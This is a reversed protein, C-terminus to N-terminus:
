PQFSAPTMASKTREIISAVSDAQRGAALDRTQEPAQEGALKRVREPMGDSLERDLSSLEEETLNPDKTRERALDLKEQYEIVATREHALRREDARRGFFKESRPRDDAISEPAIEESKLEAGHEDFVRTGDETKFVRRGDPLVHAKLLMTEIDKRAATLERENDMLAQVTATDYRDLKVTFEAIKEPSALTTQIAAVFEATRRRDTERETKDQEMKVRLNMEMLLRQRQDASIEARRTFELRASKQTLTEM